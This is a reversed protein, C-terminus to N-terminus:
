LRVQSNALSFVVSVFFSIDSFKGVYAMKLFINDEDVGSKCVYLIPPEICCNLTPVRAWAKNNNTSRSEQQSRLVLSSRDPCMSWFKSVIHEQKRTRSRLVLRAERQVFLAANTPQHWRTNYKDLGWFSAEAGCVLVVQLLWWLM